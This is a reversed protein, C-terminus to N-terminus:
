IRREIISQILNKDDRMVVRQMPAQLVLLIAALVDKIECMMACMDEMDMNNEVYPTPVNITPNAPMIVPRMELGSLATMLLEALDPGPPSDDIPEAIGFLGEGLIM